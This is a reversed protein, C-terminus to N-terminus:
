KRAERWAKRYRKYKRIHDELQIYIIMGPLWAIMCLVFIQGIISNEM